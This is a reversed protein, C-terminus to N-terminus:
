QDHEAPRWPGTLVSGDPFTTVTRVKHNRGAMTLSDEIMQDYTCISLDGIVWGPEEVAEGDAPILRGDLDLVAIVGAVFQADTMDEEWYKRRATEVVWDVYGSSTTM